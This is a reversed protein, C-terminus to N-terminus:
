MAEVYEKEVYFDDGTEGDRLEVFEGIVDLVQYLGGDYYVSSGAKIDDNKERKRRKGM